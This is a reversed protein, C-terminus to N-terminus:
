QDGVELLLSPGLKKTELPARLRGSHLALFIAAKVLVRDVGPCLREVEAITLQGATLILKVVKRVLPNLNWM